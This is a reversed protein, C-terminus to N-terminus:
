VEFTWGAVQLWQCAVLRSLFDVSRQSGLLPFYLPRVNGPFPKSALGFKNHRMSWIAWRLEGVVKVSHPPCRRRSGDWNLGLSGSPVQCSSANSSEIAGDRWSHEIRKQQLGTLNRRQTRLLTRADFEDWRVGVIRCFVPCWYYVDNRWVDGQM